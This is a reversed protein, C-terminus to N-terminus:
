RALLSAPEPRERVFDAPPATGASTRRKVDCVLEAGEMRLTVLCEGLYRAGDYLDVRGQRLRAHPALAFGTDWIRVIPITQGGSRVTLRGAAVPRVGALGDRVEQPLYSSM